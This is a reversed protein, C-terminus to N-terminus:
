EDSVRVRAFHNLIVRGKYASNKILFHGSAASHRMDAAFVVYQKSQFGHWSVQTKSSPWSWQHIIEDGEVWHHRENDFVLIMGLSWNLKCPLPRLMLNKGRMLAEAKAFQIINQITDRIELAHNKEYALHAFPISFSLIIGIIALCILLEVLTFGQSHSKPYSYKDALQNGYMVRAHNHM